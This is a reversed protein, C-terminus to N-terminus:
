HLHSSSLSPWHLIRDGDRSATPLSDRPKSFLLPRLCLIGRPNIRSKENLSLSMLNTRRSSVNSNRPPSSRAMTPTKRPITAQLTFLCLVVWAFFIATRRPGHQNWTLMHLLRSHIFHVKTQKWEGGLHGIKLWFGFILGFGQTWPIYVKWMRHSPPMCMSFLFHGKHENYIDAIDGAAFWQRVAWAVVVEPAVVAWFMLYARRLLAKRGWETPPSINPHVTVWTCIFITSWCEWIITFLTRRLPGVCTPPAGQVSSAQYLSILLFAAIIFMKESFLEYAPRVASEHKSVDSLREQWLNDQASNSASLASRETGWASVPPM